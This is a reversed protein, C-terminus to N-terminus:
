TSCSAAPPGSSRAAAALGDIKSEPKHRNLGNGSEVSPPADKVPYVWCDDRRLPENVIDGGGGHHLPTRALNPRPVCSTAAPAAGGIREWGLASASERNPVRLDSRLDPVSQTKLM